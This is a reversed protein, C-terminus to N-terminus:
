EDGDPQQRFFFIFLVLTCTFFTLDAKYEELWRIIMFFLRYLFGFLLWSYVIYLFMCCQACLFSSLRFFLFLLCVYWLVSFVHVDRIERFSLFFQLRFTLQEKKAYSVRHTVWTTLDSLLCTWTLLFIM